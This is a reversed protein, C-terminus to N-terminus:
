PNCLAAPNECLRATAGILIIKLYSEGSKAHPKDGTELKIGHLIPNQKSEM